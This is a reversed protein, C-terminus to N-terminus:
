VTATAPATKTMSLDAQAQDLVADVPGAGVLRGPGTSPGGDQASGSPGALAGLLPSGAVALDGALTGGPAALATLSALPTALLIGLSAVLALLRFTARYRAKGNM